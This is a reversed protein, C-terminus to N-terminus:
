KIKHYTVSDTDHYLVSKPRIGEIKDMLRYLEIRANSTVFSAVTLNYKKANALDDKVYEWNVIITDDNVMYEGNIEKVKKDCDDILDFYENASNIISTQPQNPKQAFKGWFSNLMIKAIFRLAENKEIKNYEM